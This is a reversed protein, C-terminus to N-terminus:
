CKLFFSPFKFALRSNQMHIWEKEGLPPMGGCDITLARAALM